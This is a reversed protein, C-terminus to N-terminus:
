AAPFSGGSCKTGPALTGTNSICPACPRSDTFSITFSRECSVGNPLPFAAM